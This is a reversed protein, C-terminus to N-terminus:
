DGRIQFKWKEKDKMGAVNKFVLSWNKKETKLTFYKINYININSYYFIKLGISGWIKKFAM